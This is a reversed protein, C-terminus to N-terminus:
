VGPKLKIKKILDQMTANFRKDTDILDNVATIAHIVTSHDRGGFHAGISKLSMNTYEKAFYMSVQRAVVIERKRTKDKLLDVAVGFYEAVFKQIYDIGVESEISQVIKQLTEKALELDLTRGALANQALMSNIVGELERLNTDVSYALYEIVNEPIAVGHADAKKHIIAIRTELDPFQLDTNLGWKFRSLLREQFGKLDKPSCDSTLIVQKGNQHLNNFVHFFIEQTKEKGAFFQVDDVILVDASQYTQGFDTAQNTKIAEVFQNAFRQSDVYMVLKDPFQKHIENGIAQVLHSKGLGVGGYVFLPNFSTVGPKQAVAYGASRALRNCDGEIFNDFTYEAKLQYEAALKHAKERGANHVDPVKTGNTKAALQKDHGNSLGNTVSQARKEVSISYELQGESGLEIDIANRLVNVYHEELWEYFFQSPVQITLVSNNLMLPEIPEFWTRYSQDGVQEKIYTLCNSWVSKCDRVEIM